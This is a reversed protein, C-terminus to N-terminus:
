FYNRLDNLKKSVSKAHEYSLANFDINGNELKKFDIGMSNLLKEINISLRVCMNKILQIQGSNIATKDTISMGTFDSSKEEASIIRRLMLANRYMRGKARTDAMAVLFTAFDSQCNIDNADALAEFRKGNDFVVYAKACATYNNSQMPPSILDCGEEIIEGIHKCALRRLGELRPYKGDMEEPFLQTMIYETWEPDQPTIKISTKSEM